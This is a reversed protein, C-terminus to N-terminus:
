YKEGITRISLADLYKKVTKELGFYLADAVLAHGISVEAVAPVAKIFFGLNQLNLDHGANVGLGADVAARAADAYLGTTGQVDLNTRFSRAFPETYLEVRDAGIRAALAAQSCDPDIFISTRIGANKLKEIVPLLKKQNEGTLDWGHDSTNAGPMDPVLTAQDPRLELVIEMYRGAFPNGEINYEIGKFDSRLMKSLQYADDYRIHRQDPRPHVTIGHSGARIIARAADCVDPLNLELSRANRLLAIKNVNVSLKVMVAAKLGTRIIVISFSKAFMLCFANQLWQSVAV